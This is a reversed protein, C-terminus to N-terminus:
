SMIIFFIFSVSNDVCTQHFVLLIIKEYVCTKWGHYSVMCWMRQPELGKKGAGSGQISYADELQTDRRRYFGCKTQTGWFNFGVEQGGLALSLVRHTTYLNTKIMEEEQVFGYAKSQLKGGERSAYTIFSHGNYTWLPSM